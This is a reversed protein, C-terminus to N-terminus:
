WNWMKVWNKFEANKLALQKIKTKIDKLRVPAYGTREVCACYRNHTIDAHKPNAHVHGYINIYPMQENLYVPEHSLIIFDDIIIPFKYAEVFGAEMWWSPSRAIDHNGMIMIKNGNLCSMLEIIKEKSALAFDGLFYVKHEKGVVRNWNEILTKEMADTDAFPRGEYRIINAHGFHTDSIIFRNPM